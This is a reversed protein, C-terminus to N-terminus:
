SIIAEALLRGSMQSAMRPMEQNQAMPATSMVWIGMMQRVIRPPVGSTLVKRTVMNARPTAMPATAAWPRRLPRMLAPRTGAEAASRARHSASKLQLTQRRGGASGPVSFRVAKKLEQAWRRRPRSQRITLTVPPTNATGRLAMSWYRERASSLARIMAALLMTLARKM